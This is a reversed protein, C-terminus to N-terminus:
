FDIYRMHFNWIRSGLVLNHIKAFKHIEVWNRSLTKGFKSLDDYDIIENVGFDDFETVVNM